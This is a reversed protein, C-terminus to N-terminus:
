RERERKSYFMIEAIMPSVILIFIAIGIWCLPTFPETYAKWDLSGAPNKLFLQQYSETIPPLFDVVTSKAKTITFEAPAIDLNGQELM